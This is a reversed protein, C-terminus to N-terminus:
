KIILKKTKIGMENEVSILYIGKELEKGVINSIMINAPSNIKSKGILKGTVSYINITADHLNDSLQITADKSTPNPFLSFDSYSKNEISSLIRSSCGFNINDLYISNGTSSQFEFMVLVNEEDVFNSIDVTHSLWDSESPIFDGTIIPSYPAINQQSVEYVVDNWTRGSTTSLKVTFTENTATTRAAYALDFTINDCAFQTFDIMPSILRHVGSTNKIDLFLSTLGESSAQTTKKWTESNSVGDIFWTKTPDSADNVPFNLSIFSESFPAIPENNLIKAIGQKTLTNDDSGAPNSVTLSIDYRGTESWSVTPNRITSSNSSSNNGFDWSYDITNANYSNNLIVANYDACYYEYEMHFDAVPTPECTFSSAIGTNDVNAASWIYDRGGLSNNLAAHTMAKQGQTFNEADCWGYDMYNQENDIIESGSWLITTGDIAYFPDPDGNCTQRAINCGGPSGDCNPTDTIYDDDTCNQGNAPDNTGGWPHSLSLWHGAEHALNRFVNTPLVIGDISPSIGPYYSYGGAGSACNTVIWVNLYENSPWDIFAKTYAKVGDDADYTLETVYRTIGNTCNGNPDKKALVFEIEMDDHILSFPHEIDTTDADRKRWHNNMDDLASLIEADSVNENGYNHLVHFVIPIQYIPGKENVNFNQETYKKAFERFDLVASKYHPNSQFAQNIYHDSGCKLHNQGEAITILIFFTCIISSFYKTM